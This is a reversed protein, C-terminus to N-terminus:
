FKPISSSTTIGWWCPSNCPDNTSTQRLQAVQDALPADIVGAGDYESLRQNGEINHVASAMIIAKVVEPWTQLQSNRHILLGALGAVQPAALSTGTNGAANGFAAVVEVAPAVVEPKERDTGSEGGTPDDYNSLNFMSDDSWNATNQDNIGGVTIVNWAKGPSTIYSNTNGASKAVVFNRTRVWYDFARDSWNINADSEFGFSANVISASQPAETAWKLAIVANSMTIQNVGTSDFGADVITAAHAIGRYPDSNCAAISATKTHHPQIGQSSAKTQAITLCGTGTDINGPELIAIKVGTGTFGKQWVTPVRDSPIAIDSELKIEADVLYILGVTDLQSLKLIVSKPISTTISPMLGDSEWKYGQQSLWDEVEQSRFQTDEMLLEEYRAQIREAEQPDKVEVLKGGKAIAEGAEPFERIIIAYIEEESHLRHGALWIAIHLVTEDTVKQLREYLAVHLKSYKAQYAKEEAAELVSLDEVVENSIVDVLANFTVSNSTQWDSIKFYQFTRGSLPYEQKVEYEAVLREEPIGYKQSVYQIAVRAYKSVFPTPMPTPLPSEIQTDGKLQQAALPNSVVLFGVTMVIIVLVISRCYFKNIM